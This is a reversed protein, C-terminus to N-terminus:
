YIWDRVSADLEEDTLNILEKAPKDLRTVLIERGSGNRVRLLTLTNGFRKEIHLEKTNRNIRGSYVLMEYLNHMAKQPVQKINKLNYLDVLTIVERLVEM